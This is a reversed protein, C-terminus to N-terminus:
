KKSKKFKYPVPGDPYINWTSTRQDFVAEMVVENTDKNIVTAIPDDLIIKHNQKVIKGCSVLANPMHQFIQVDAASAPLGDFPAQGEEVQNTNKGDAVQVKIGNRQVRRKRVGTNKGCYHGSAGSDLKWPQRYDGYEVLEDAEVGNYNNHTIIPSKVLKQISMCIAKTTVEGTIRNTHKGKVKKSGFHWRLNTFILNKINKNKTM